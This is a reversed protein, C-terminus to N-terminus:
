GFRIHASQMRSHLPLTLESVPDRVPLCIRTLSIRHSFLACSIRISRASEWERREYLTSAPLFFCIHYLDPKRNANQMTNNIAIVLELYNFVKSHRMITSPSSVVSCVIKVVFWFYCYLSYCLLLPLLSCFFFLMVSIFRKPQSALNRIM